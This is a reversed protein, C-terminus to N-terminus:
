TAPVPPSYLVGRDLLTYLIYLLKRAVAVIAKKRGLRSQRSWFWSQFESGRKKVAAWACQVLISKVYPNGHLTKRCKITDASGDNRPTLGAWKCVKEPASFSNQPKPSIEALVEMASDLSIGPMSVAIELQAKYEDFLETLMGTLEGIERDLEDIRDMHFRLLKKEVENLEGNVAALIEEPVHKLRKDCCDHIDRLTVKGQEALRTLLATSSVGTISSFVSSFKFGHMQLFKELQNTATIRQGTVKRRLRSVERMNRVAHEPIFSNYKRLLGHKLLTAIWQADAVDSKRGPMNRIEYANVVLLSQYGSCKEEIREYVPLWYVGTSEMAVDRCGHGNLWVCLRDLEKSTCGFRERYAAEAGTKLVCAEIMEEHVDLGCSIELIEEIGEEM